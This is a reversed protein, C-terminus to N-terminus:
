NNNSKNIRVTFTKEFHYDGKDVVLTFDITKDTAQPKNVYINNDLPILLDPDSITWTITADQLYKHAVMETAVLDIFETYRNTNIMIIPCIKGFSDYHRKVNALTLNYRDLLYAVLKANNHMAGEYNGDGNIAMEIGISNQNYGTYKPTGTGGAHWGIVDLPLSQIIQNEDVSFHWSSGNDPNTIKSHMLRNLVAATNGTAPMGSEHIVIWMVRDENPIQYGPYMDRDLDAQSIVPRAAPVNNTEDWYTLNMLDTGTILDEVIKPDKGSFLNIAGYDNTRVQYAFSYDITNGNVDKIPNFKTTSGKFVEPVQNSLWEDLFEKESLGGFNGLQFKYNLKSIGYTIEATVETNVVEIPRILRGDAKILGLIPSSYSIM